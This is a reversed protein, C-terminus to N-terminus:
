PKLRNHHFLVTWVFIGALGCNLAIQSHSPVDQTLCNTLAACATLTLAMRLLKSGVMPWRRVVGDYRYIMILLGTVTATMIANAILNIIM